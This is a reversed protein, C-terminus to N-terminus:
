YKGLVTGMEIMPDITIAQLCIFTEKSVELREEDLVKLKRPLQFLDNTKIKETVQITSVCFVKSLHKSCLRIGM